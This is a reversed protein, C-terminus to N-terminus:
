EPVVLITGLDDTIQARYVTEGKRQNRSKFPLIEQKTEETVPDQYTRVVEITHRGATTGGITSNNYYGPDKKTSPAVISQGPLPADVPELDNLMYKNLDASAVPVIQKEAIPAYVATMDFSIQPASVFRRITNRSGEFDPAIIYAPVAMNFSYRVLREEDTFDSFNNGPSFGGELYAVFYYGKETEIRFTLKGNTHASSMFSMLVDNMQQTYQTWFTVEYTTSYYKVNPIEYIEYINNGIKPTLLKGQRYVSATEGHPRRTAIQGPQTGRGRSDGLSGTLLLHSDNVRDDQNQLAERNILRQYIQDTKAIRRKITIPQSQNTAMGRSVDKEVGTRAISILPLILTDNDDRLPKNRSLIAFREGTAFIVPIRVIAGDQKYFLDLSENFLNFIARDVDEVTCSPISIEEDRSIGLEKNAAGTQHVTSM